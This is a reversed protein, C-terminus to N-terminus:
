VAFSYNGQMFEEVYWDIQDHDALVMDLLRVAGLLRGLRDLTKRTTAYDYKKLSGRVLDGKIEAKFHLRKLIRAILKARRARRTIDAAGGKFSFTVYNDNIEKGCFVDLVAFHYGLCANFNMYDRSLVVYNPGSMREDIAAEPRMASEAVITAFGRWDLGVSGM